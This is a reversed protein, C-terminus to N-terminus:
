FRLVCSQQAALEALQQDSIELTPIVPEGIQALVAANKQVYVAPASETLVPWYRTYNDEDVLGEVSQAAARIADGRLYLAIETKKWVGVGAAIRLAEAPRHSARPDSTVIILVRPKM